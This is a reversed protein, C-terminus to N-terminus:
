GTILDNVQIPDATTSLPVAAKWHKVIEKKKRGNNSLIQGQRRQNDNM